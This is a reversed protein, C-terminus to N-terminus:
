EDGPIVNLQGIKTREDGNKQIAYCEAGKKVFTPIIPAFDEGVKYFLWPLRYDRSKEYRTYTKATENRDIFLRIASEENRATPLQSKEGDGGQQSDNEGMEVTEEQEEAGTNEETGTAIAAIPLLSVVMVLALLMSLAKHKM